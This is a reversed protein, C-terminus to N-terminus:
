PGKSNRVDRPVETKSVNILFVGPKTYHSFPFNIQKTSIPLHCWNSYFKCIHVRCYLGTIVVDNIAYM